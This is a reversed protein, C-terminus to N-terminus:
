EGIWIHYKTFGKSILVYYLMQEAGFYFFITLVYKKMTKLRNSLQCTGLVYDWVPESAGWCLLGCTFFNGINEMIDIKSSKQVRFSSKWKIKTQIESIKSFFRWSQVVTIRKLSKRKWIKSMRQFASIRIRENEPIIWAAPRLMMAYWGPSTVRNKPFDRFEMQVVGCNVTECIM